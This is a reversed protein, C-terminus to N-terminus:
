QKFSVKLGIIFSTFDNRISLIYTSDKNQWKYSLGIDYCEESEMIYPTGYLDYLVDVIRTSTDILEKNNNITFIQLYLASKIENKDNFKFLVRDDYLKVRGLFHCEYESRDVALCEKFFNDYLNAIDNKTTTEKLNFIFDKLREKIKLEQAQEEETHQENALEFMKVLYDVDKLYKNEADLYEDKILTEAQEKAEAEQSVPETQEKAGAEQSVPETQDKVVAEQSAPETQDKVAAEQSAPETQDKAGAEQSVTETQDKVVAESSVLATQEQSTQDGSPSKTLTNINIALSILLAIALVLSLSNFKSSM